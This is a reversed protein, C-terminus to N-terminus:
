NYCHFQNLQQEQSYKREVKNLCRVFRKPVYSESSAIYVERSDNEGVVTLIVSTKVFHGREENQLQKDGTINCKCLRNKTSFM